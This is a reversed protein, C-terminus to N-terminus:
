AVARAGLAARAEQLHEQMLAALPHECGFVRRAMRVTDELTNVAERLDDLTASDNQCLVKAYTWRMRITTEDSDGLVRRSVPLAKLLLSKAEEFRQLDKLTSAYNTAESLTELDEEGLHKLLGYYVDQRMSLAQEKRELLHYTTALNSQVRLISLESNTIRRLMSLQAEEVSLADEFHRVDYLVSGLLGMASARLEDVEPRGM